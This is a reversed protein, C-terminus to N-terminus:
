ELIKNYLSCINKAVAKIDYKDKVLLVGRNGMEELDSPPTEFVSTLTNELQAISLNIWWGCNHIELDEWPTGRTTLVPVGVALAEAVVIGFNESYTPLVMVDASRIFNWKDEGYKSGVFKVNKLDAASKKLTKIYLDEGNGAMELIWDKTDINRWAKLLLEIGKKPHIRSLFIMKKTGYQSKTTKIESLDIGNPIITVPNTYGIKKINDAEMQATAHLHDAKRIAKNQYLWLAIKKKWPHRALIWPELMGRPTIIYPIKRKRAWYAMVNVYPSWIHQIHILDVEDKNLSAGFLFVDYISRYTLKLNNGVPIEVPNSSKQTIIEIDIGLKALGECSKPVSRAPGGSSVDISSIVHLVVM